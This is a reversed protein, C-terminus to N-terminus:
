RPAPDAGSHFPLKAVELTRTNPTTPIEDGTTAWEEISIRAVGTQNSIAINRLTVCLGDFTVESAGGTPEVSFRVEPLVDTAGRDDM